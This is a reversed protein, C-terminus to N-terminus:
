ETHLENKALEKRLKDESAILFSTVESQLHLEEQDLLILQSKLDRAKRRNERLKDQLVIYDSNLLQLPSAGPM